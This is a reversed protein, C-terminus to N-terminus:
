SGESCSGEWVLVLLFAWTRLYRARRWTASLSPLPSPPPSLPPPTLSAHPGDIVSMRACWPQLRHSVYPCCYSKGSCPHSLPGGTLALPPVWLSPLIALGSVILGAYSFTLSPWSFATSTVEVSRHGADTEMKGYATEGEELFLCPLYDQGHDM